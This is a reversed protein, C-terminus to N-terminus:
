SEKYFRVYVCIGTNNHHLYVSLFCVVRQFKLLQSAVVAIIRRCSFSRWTPAFKKKVRSNAVTATAACTKKLCVASYDDATSEDVISLQEYM